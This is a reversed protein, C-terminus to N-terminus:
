FKFNKLVGKPFKLAAPVIKEKETPPWIVTKVNRGMHKDYVACNKKLYSDVYEMM